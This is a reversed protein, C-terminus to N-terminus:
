LFIQKFSPSTQRFTKEFLIITVSTVCPKGHEKKGGGKCLSVIVQYCMSRQVCRAFPQRFPQHLWSNCGLATIKNGGCGADQM